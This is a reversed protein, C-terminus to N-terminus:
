IARGREDRPRDLGVDAFDWSERERATPPRRAEMDDSSADGDELGGRRGKMEVLGGTDGKGQYSWDEFGRGALGDGNRDRLVVVGRGDRRRRRERERGFNGVADAVCARVVSWSTVFFIVANWVGQLPLVTASAVNLPYPSDGYILGRIRNISSPTWTVLVSIAFLFSTRLYARKVPDLVVFRSFFAQPRQGKGGQQQQDRASNGNGQGDSRYPTDARSGMGPRPPSTVTTHIGPGRPRHFHQNGANNPSNPSNPQLRNPASDSRAQQTYPKERPDYEDDDTSYPPEKFGVYTRGPSAITSTPASESSSSTIRVETFVEVAGTKSGKQNHPLPWESGREVKMPSRIASATVSTSTGYGSHMLKNVRNRARFVQYGVCIYIIGSAIICIWILMYYTYIRLPSWDNSVWCWM